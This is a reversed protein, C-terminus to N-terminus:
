MTVLKNHLREISFEVEFRSETKIIQMKRHLPMNQILSHYHAGIINLWKYRMRFIGYFIVASRYLATM